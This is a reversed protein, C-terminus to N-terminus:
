SIVLNVPDDLEGVYFVDYIVRALIEIVQPIAAQNFDKILREMKIGHFAFGIKRLRILQQKEYSYMSNMQKIGSLDIILDLKILRLELIIDREAILNFKISKIKKLILDELLEPILFSDLSPTHKKSKLDHLEEELKILNQKLVDLYPHQEINRNRLKKLYRKQGRIMSVQERIKPLAPNKLHYFKELQQRVKYYANMHYDAGLYDKELLCDRIVTDIRHKEKKLNKIILDLDTKM